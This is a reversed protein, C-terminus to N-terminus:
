CHHGIRVQWRDSVIGDLVLGKRHEMEGIGQLMIELDTEDFSDIKARHASAVLAAAAQNLTPGISILRVGGRNIASITRM